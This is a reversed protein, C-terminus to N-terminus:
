CGDDALPQQMSAAKALERQKLDYLDRKSSTKLFEEESRILALEQEVISAETSLMDRKAISWKHEEESPGTVASNPLGIEAFVAQCVPNALAERRDKISWAACEDITAAGAELRRAEVARGFEAIVDVEAELAARLERQKDILECKRRQREVGASALTQELEVERKLREQEALLKDRKAQVRAQQVASIATDGYVLGSGTSFEATEGTLITFCAAANQEVYPSFTFTLESLDKIVAAKNLEPLTGDLWLKIREDLTQALLPGALAISAGFVFFSLRTSTRM